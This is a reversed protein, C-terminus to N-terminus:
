AAQSVSVCSVVLILVLLFAAMKRLMTTGGICLLIQLTKRDQISYTQQIANDISIVKQVINDQEQDQM